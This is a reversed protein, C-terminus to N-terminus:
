SWTPISSTVTIWWRNLVHLFMGLLSVKPSMPFTLAIIEGLTIKDPRKLNKDAKPLAVPVAFWLSFSQAWNQM